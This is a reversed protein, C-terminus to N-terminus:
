SVTIKSSQIYGKTAATFYITAMARAGLAITSAKINAGDATNYLYTLASANINQDSGSDNLLTVTNGATSFVDNPIVWGGSTNAIVKGADAAALTRASTNGNYPIDRLNGLSDSVSGTVSVGSSTTEFKASGNHYLFVGANNKAIISNDNGADTKVYFWNSAPAQLILDGNTSKIYNHSDHWIQLDDSDGLILKVSDGGTFSTTAALRGTTKAGYTTTEFTKTNDYYLSVEAANTGEIMTKSGAANTLDIGTNSRIYLHGTSNNIISDTGNHSLQLDGTSGAGVSIYENDGLRLGDVTSIGTTVTGDNTTAFKEVNDYRLGVAGDAEATIMGHGNAKDVIKLDDAQIASYTGNHWLQLESGNGIRINDDNTANGNPIKIGSFTGIGTTVTGDNTTEFKKANNYYLQVEADGIALIGTKSNVSVQFDDAAEVFIDDGSGTTQIYLDGTNNDIFSNTGNHQIILDEGDGIKVGNTVGDAARFGSATAIGTVITGSNTTEWKKNGNYYINVAANETALLYQDAGTDSLEVVSGRIKLSGTGTDEIFSHTGQHKIVLDSGDGVNLQVNDLLHIDATGSFTAVGANGITVGSGVLFQGGSVNVGSRATVLGVSDINTVDEYTLTGGITVNSGVHLETGVRLSKAIGVGGSVVLAGSTSSTSETTDSVTVVDAFNSTSNADVAGTFTSVGSVVVTNTRVNLTGVGVVGTLNSGSIAPLAGTLQASPLSTLNAGSGRFTDARVDTASIIGSSGFVTVGTGVQLTAQPNTTGIGVLKNANDVQIIAGDTGIGSGFEALRSANSIPAM